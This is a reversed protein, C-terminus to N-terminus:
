RNWHSLDRGLYEGLQNNWPRYFEVLTQRLDPDMPPYQWPTRAGFFTFRRLRAPLMRTRAPQSFFWRYLPNKWVAAPNFSTTMAPTHFDPDVGLFQYIRRYFSGPSHRLDDFPLVLLNEPPFFAQYRQIYQIYTGRSFYGLQKPHYTPELASDVVQTFTRHESLSRRNDWYQSYARDIPNRVTLILKTDPLLSHIREPVQPHCIYGPSAEGIAIATSPAPTFYHQYYNPGRQYEQELFFFNVEKREPMFVEPHQRLVHYLSTTGSKQSGIILFNPLMNHNGKLGM